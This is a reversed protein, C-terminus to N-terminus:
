LGFTLAYATNQKAVQKLCLMSMNAYSEYPRNQQRFPTSLRYYVHSKLASNTETLCNGPKWLQMKCWM